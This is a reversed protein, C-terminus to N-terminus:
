LYVYLIRDIYVCSINFFFTVSTENYTAAGIIPRDQLAWWMSPFEVFIHLIFFHNM